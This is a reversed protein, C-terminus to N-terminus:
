QKVMRITQTLEKGYQNKFRLTIQYVGPVINDGDLNMLYEGAIQQQNTLVRVRNGLIGTVEINVTGDEPLTYKIKAYERFPNPYATLLMQSSLDPIEIGTTVNKALKLGDVILSANQIVEFDEDALENLPDASLKFRCVEDDAVISITKLRVTLMTEVAALSIPEMSNWGIRLEDNVIAFMVPQEPNNRLFVNEVELKEVPYDLILSIAGVQMATEAKLPLDVTTAPLVEINDGQNLTLTSSGTLSGSKNNAPPTFSKNFDGSVMALFNQTSTGVGAPITVQLVNNILPDDQQTNIIVSAHWFEWQPALQFLTGGTVFYRQITAADDADLYFDGYSATGIATGGSVDGALFRVKEVSPTHIGSSNRNVFWSNVQAADTVNLAGATSKNV